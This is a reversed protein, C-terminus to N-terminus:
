QEKTFDSPVSFLSASSEELAHLNGREFILTIGKATGPDTSTARYLVLHGPERYSFTSAPVCGDALSQPMALTVAPQPDSIDTVYEVQTVAHRGPACWGTAIKLELIARTRYGRAQVGAITTDPLRETVPEGILAPPLAGNTDVEIIESGHHADIVQVTKMAPNLIFTLGEDPKVITIENRQESRLWGHYFAFHSITGASIFHAVAANNKEIEHQQEAQQVANLGRSAARAVFPGAFPVSALASSVLMNGVGQAVAKGPGRVEAKLPPLSAITAADSAFSDVEPPAVGHLLVRDIQDFAIASQGHLRMAMSGASSQARGIALTALAVGVAPVVARVLISTTKKM